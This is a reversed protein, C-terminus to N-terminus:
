KKEKPSCAAQLADLLHDIKFEPCRFAMQIMKVLDKEEIILWLEDKGAGIIEVTTLEGTQLSFETIM